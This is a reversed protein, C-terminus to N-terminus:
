RRGRRRRRLHFFRNGSLTPDGTIRRAVASLSRFRRERYLYRGFGRRRAVRRSSARKHAYFDSTSRVIYVIHEEGLYTRRICTGPQLDGARFDVGSGTVFETMDRFESVSEQALAWTPPNDGM